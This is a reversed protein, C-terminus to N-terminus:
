RHADADAGTYGTQVLKFNENLVVTKFFFYFGGYKPNERDERTVMREELKEREVPLAYAGIPKEDTADSNIWVREGKLLIAEGSGTFPACWATLYTVIQDKVSEYVDGKRPFRIDEPILSREYERAWDLEPQEISKRKGAKMEEILDDLTLNWDPPRTSSERNAEDDGRKRRTWNM